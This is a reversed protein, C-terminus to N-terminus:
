TMLQSFGSLRLELVIFLSLSAEQFFSSHHRRRRYHRIYRGCHRCRRREQRHRFHSQRQRTKETFTSAFSSKLSIM